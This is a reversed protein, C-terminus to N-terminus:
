QKDLEVVLRHWSEGHVQGDETLHWGTAPQGKEGTVQSSEAFHVLEWDQLARQAVKLDLDAQKAIRYETTPEAARALVDLVRARAQPMSSLAARRVIRRVVKDSLDLAVLGLAFLRLQGVIRGPNEVTVVGDVERKWDRPVSARGYAVLMAVDCIVDDLEDPPEADAV